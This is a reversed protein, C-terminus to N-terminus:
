LLVPQLVMSLTMLSTLEAKLMATWYDGGGPLEGGCGCGDRKAAGRGEYPRPLPPTELGRM